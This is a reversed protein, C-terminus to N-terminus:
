DNEKIKILRKDFKDLAQIGKETPKIIGCEDVLAYGREIMEDFSRGAHEEWRIGGYISLSGNNILRRLLAITNINPEYEKYLWQRIKKSNDSDFSEDVGITLDCIPVNEITNMRTYLRYGHFEHDLKELYQVKAYKMKTSVKDTIEMVKVIYLDNLVMIKNMRMENMM